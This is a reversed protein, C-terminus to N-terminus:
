LNTQKKTPCSPKEVFVPYYYIKTPIVAICDSERCFYNGGHKNNLLMVTKTISSITEKRLVESTDLPRQTEERETWVLGRGQCLHPFCLHGSGCVLANDKM